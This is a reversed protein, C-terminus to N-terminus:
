NPENARDVKGHRKLKPLRILKSKLLEELMNPVKVDLFPYKM